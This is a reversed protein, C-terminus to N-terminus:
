SASQKFSIEKLDFKKETGDLEVILKGIADVGRITGEFSGTKESYFHHPQNLLYLHGLYISKLLGPHELLGLRANFVGILELLVDKVPYFNAKQKRISTASLDGFDEQNVNLGIGVVSAKVMAGRLTNEILVGCIKEDGVYIDNPWKISASIDMNQLTELIAVSVFMNLLWQQDAQLQFDNLIISCTLNSGPLSQWETMRQGRGMVQEDALIVTGHATEGSKLM